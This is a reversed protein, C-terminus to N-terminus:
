WGLCRFRHGGATSRTSTGRWFGFCGSAPLLQDPVATAISTSVRSADDSAVGAGSADEVLIWDDSSSERKVIDWCSTSRAQRSRRSLSTLTLGDQVKFNGTLVTGPAITFEPYSDGGVAARRPPAPRSPPASLAKRSIESCRHRRQGHWWATLWRLRGLSHRRRAAESCGMSSRTGGGPCIELPANLKTAAPHRNIADVALEALM